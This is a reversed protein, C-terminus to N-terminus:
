SLALRLMRVALPTKIHTMLKYAVRWPHDIHGASLIISKCEQNDLVRLLEAREEDSLGLFIKRLKLGLKIEKGVSKIWSKHYKSLMASSFDRKKLAEIAVDSCIIGALLGLYLGGGSLPKLQSASDGVIMVNDTYSKDILGIPILGGMVRKINSKSFSRLPEWKRCLRDLYERPNGRVNIGLGIRVYNERVPIIWSFWGPSTYNDIMVDVQDLNSRTLEGEVQFGYIIEPPLSLSFWRAVDSRAGDAGILLSTKIQFEEGGKIYRLIVRDSVREASIARAGKLIEAGSLMAKEALKKDFLVRDIVLAYTEDGLFSLRTGDYAYINAGKINNLVVSYDIGSLSLVDKSILGACHTPEGIDPHEELILVNYGKESINRGVFCGIPGGGVIVVDYYMM